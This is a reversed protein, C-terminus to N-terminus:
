GGSPKRKVARTPPQENKGAKEELYKNEIGKLRESEELDVNALVSYVNVTFARVVHPDGSNLIKECGALFPDRAAERELHDLLVELPKSYQKERRIIQGVHQGSIGLM